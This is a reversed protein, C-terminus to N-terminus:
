VYTLDYNLNAQNHLYPDYQYVFEYEADFIEKVLSEMSSNFKWYKIDGNDSAEFDYYYACLFSWLKVNDFDYVPNWGYESSAGWKWESPKDKMGSTDAGLESFGTKWTNQDSVKLIKQNMDWALQTYYKEAESLDYDQANYTGLVFGGGSSISSFIMLIFAFVLLLILLMAGLVAFFKATESSYVNKVYQFSAKVADTFKETVNQRKTNYKTAEYSISNITTILVSSM